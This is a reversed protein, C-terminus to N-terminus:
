AGLIVVASGVHDDTSAIARRALVRLGADRAEEELRGADLVDLVTRDHEVQRTGDPEVIERVRDLLIREGDLAVATPRSAYVTGDFDRMDPAVTVADAEDFPEVDEVLAIAALAGPALLSPLAELLPRRGTPGGLLQVTQMPALVLGFREALAPRRADGVSAGAPLGRLSARRRLEAVLVPDIDLGHTRHGAAALDLAVRGTGAGLDLVRGEPRAAALERWLERDAAYGGCELDHWRV